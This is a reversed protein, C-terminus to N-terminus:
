EENWLSLERGTYISHGSLFGPLSLYDMILLFVRNPVAVWLEFTVWLLTKFSDSIYRTMQMHCDCWGETRM